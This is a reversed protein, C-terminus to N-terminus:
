GGVKGITGHRRSSVENLLWTEYRLGSETGWVREDVEAVKAWGRVLGRWYCTEAAAGLYGRGVVGERQNRAITRAVGQHERLFLVVAELNSFDSKVYVANADRYDAVTGLVGGQGGRRQRARVAAGTGGRGGGEMLVEADVPRLLLASSTAWTVPAMILVSECAQHYPLRGSYTVGETYVVYRFACFQEIAISNSANGGDLAQVDAWHKGKAARVLDGRLRPQGLPNFWPTGRWVAKDTKAPWPTSAEIHDIRALVDAMTGLNMKPWSWSAFSPMLWTNLRSSAKNPRSFAWTNNKPVDNICFAFTTNPLPTPSTILARHIQSLIATRQHLIQPLTDPAATLISLKGDRIRAQVLGKYDPNSKELVFGGRAVASDIEAFALPFAARCEDEGLDLRNKKDKTNEDPSPKARLATQPGGFLARNRIGVQEATRIPDYFLSLVVLVLTFLSLAALRYLGKRFPAM